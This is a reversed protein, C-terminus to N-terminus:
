RIFRATVSDVALVFITFFGLSPLYVRHEYIADIIPVISSTPSLIIFYWLIFFGAVRKRSDPAKQTSIIMYFAAATIAALILLSVIPPPLPTNLVTGEAVQPAKTLEKSWPFDYDLNQKAPFALLGMYYTMVNFQTYLYERPTVASLKFGATYDLEKTGLGAKVKPAAYKTDASEDSLDNFGGLPMITTITFAAFLGGLIAYVPWKAAIGRFKGKAIFCFDYLLVVAPLTYAIEKSHFALLYSAGVGSYLAARKMTGTAKSARVLFLIALVFFLSMLSEMRQVIYTVAQTQVPHAAFILATLASLRRAAAETSNVLRLTYLLLLYVLGTNIIHIALNVAHYGATDMGSIAYNLAFTAMTLGRQGSLIAPLNSLDRLQTNDVIIPLDDFQFASNFTNSYILITFIAAVLVFAPHFWRSLLLRDM